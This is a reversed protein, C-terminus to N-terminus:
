LPEFSVSRVIGNEQEYSRLAQQDATIIHNNELETFDQRDAITVLTIVLGDDSMAFTTTAVNNRLQQSASSSQYWNVDTTPRTVTITRKIMTM